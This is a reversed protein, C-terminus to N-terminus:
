KRKPAFRPDYASALATIPFYELAHEAAFSLAPLLGKTRLQISISSAAVIDVYIRLSSDSVWRGAERLEVFSM